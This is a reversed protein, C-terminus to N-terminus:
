RTITAVAVGSFIMGAILVTFFGAVLKQRITIPIKSSVIKGAELLQRDIASIFNVGGKWGKPEIKARFGKSMNSLISFFYIVNIAPNVNALTCFVCDTDFITAM